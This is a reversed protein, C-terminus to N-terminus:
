SALETDSESPSASRLRFGEPIYDFSQEVSWWMSEDLLKGQIQSCYEEFDPLLPQMSVEAPDAGALARIAGTFADATAEPLYGGQWTCIVRRCCQRARAACAAFLDASYRLSASPDGELGDFGLSLFLVDPFFAEIAPWAFASLMKWAEADGAGEPLPLNMTAGRGAAYGREEATYSQARAVSLELSIWTFPSAFFASIALADKTTNMARTSTDCALKLRTPATRAAVLAVQSECVMKSLETQKVDTLVNDAEEEPDEPLHSRDLLSTLMEKLDSLKKRTNKVQKRFATNYLDESINEGILPVAELKARDCWPSLLYDINGLKDLLCRSRDPGIYDVTVSLVIQEFLKDSDKFFDQELVMRTSRKMWYPTIDQEEKEEVCRKFRCCEQLIAATARLCIKWEELGEEPKWSSEKRQSRVQSQISTPKLGKEANYEAQKKRLEASELEIKDLIASHEQTTLFYVRGDKHRSARGILQKLPTAARFLGSGDADPVIVMAVSPFDLGEILGKSGLLIDVQGERFEQLAAAKKKSDMAGHVVAAAEGRATLLGWLVEAQNNTVCSIIVQEGEQRPRDEKEQEGPSTIGLLGCIKCYLSWTKHRTDGPGQQCGEMEIRFIEPELIGTPRFDLEVKEGLLGGAKEQPTASMNLVYHPLRRELQPLTLPGNGRHEAGVDDVPLLQSRARGNEVHAQVQTRYGTSAIGLMPWTSHCEDVVLIWHAGFKDNMLDILTKPDLLDGYLDFMDPCRLVKKLKEIDEQMRLDRAERNMWLDRAERNRFKVNGTRAAAKKRQKKLEEELQKA